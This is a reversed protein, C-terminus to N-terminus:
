GSKPDVLALVVPCAAGLPRTSMFQTQQQCMMGPLTEMVRAAFGEEAADASGRMEIHM